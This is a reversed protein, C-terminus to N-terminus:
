IVLDTPTIPNACPLDAVPQITGRYPRDEDPEVFSIPVELTDGSPLDVPFFGPAPVFYTPDDGSIVAGSIRITRDGTNVFRVISDRPWPAGGTRGMVVS